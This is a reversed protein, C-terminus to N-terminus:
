PVQTVYRFGYESFSDHIKSVMVVNISLTEREWAGAQSHLRRFLEPKSDNFRLKRCFETRLGGTPVLLETFPQRAGGKSLHPRPPNAKGVPSGPLHHNAGVTDFAFGVFDWTGATKEKRALRWSPFREAPPLCGIVRKTDRDADTKRM